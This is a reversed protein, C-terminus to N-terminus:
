KAQKSNIMNMFRDFMFDTDNPGGCAEPHFQVSIAPISKYLIGENTMDNINYFLEDAINKDITDNVVAYGHNQSTIYLKGTETSKVPHNTGRHGYKLKATSFGNALALLQHGLCIGMVPIDHKLLEALNKIVETNEAPDGPGNSLFIGDPNLALADEATTDHPLIHVECGRKVLSRVINRKKGFDYLAIRPSGGANEVIVSKTSVTSVPSIIRYNKIADMDARSPDDTIMGNMTGMERLIKTLARTDIGYIGPINNKKLFTDIDEESRFNSAVESYERVIYASVGVNDGEADSENVGYNGILPFTQCVAQGIYSEDTLTEVYGTMATTFVIEAIVDHDAGFANGEFITGNELILYRKMTTSYDEM